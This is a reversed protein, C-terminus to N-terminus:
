DAPDVRAIPDGVNLDTGKEVLIEVVRGQVQSVIEQTAKDTEVEAVSEGVSVTDGVNKYWELLTVQEITLGWKPVVIERTM